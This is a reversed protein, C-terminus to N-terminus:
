RIQSEREYWELASANQKHVNLEVAKARTGNPKPQEVLDLLATGVGRGPVASHLEYLFVTSGRGRWSSHVAFGALHQDSTMCAHVIFSDRTFYADFPEGNRAYGEMNRAELATMQERLEQPVQTGKYTDFTLADGDQACPEAEGSGAEGSGAEGSGAEAQSGAEASAPGGSSAEGSRAEADLAERWATGQKLGQLSALAGDRKAARALKEEAKTAIEKASASASAGARAAECIQAILDLRLVQAAVGVNARRSMTKTMYRGTWKGNEDREKQRVRQVFKAKPDNTGGRFTCRDGLRKKRRNGKELISDDNRDGPGHTLIDEEIHAYADHVYQWAAKNKTHEMIAVAWARGTDACALELACM